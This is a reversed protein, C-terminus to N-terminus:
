AQPGGGRDWGPYLVVKQETGAALRRYGEALQSLPLESTVLFDTRLGRRLLSLMTDWTRYMERGIVAHLTLGRFIINQGFDQLTIASDTPLGM